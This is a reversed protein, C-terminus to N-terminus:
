PLDEKAVRTLTVRFYWDQYAFCHLVDRRMEVFSDVGPLSMEDLVDGILRMLASKVEEENM